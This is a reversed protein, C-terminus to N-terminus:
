TMYIKYHQRKHILRQLKEHRKLRKLELKEREVALRNYLEEYDVKQKSEIIEVTGAMTTEEFDTSITNEEDFDNKILEIKIRWEPKSNENILGSEKLINLVYDYTIANLDFDEDDFIFEITVKKKKM